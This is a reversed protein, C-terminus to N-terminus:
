KTKLTVGGHAAQEAGSARLTEDDDFEQTLLDAIDELPTGKM